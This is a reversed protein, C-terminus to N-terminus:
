LFSHVHQSRWGGWLWLRVTRDPRGFRLTQPSRVEILPQPRRYAREIFCFDMSLLPAVRSFNSTRSINLIPIYRGHCTPIFHKIVARATVDKCGCCLLLFLHLLKQFDDNESDQDSKANDPIWFALLAPGHNREFKSALSIRFSMLITSSLMQYRIRGTNIKTSLTLYQCPYRAFGPQDKVWGDYITRPNAKLAANHKSITYISM